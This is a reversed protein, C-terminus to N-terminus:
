YEGDELYAYSINEQKIHIKEPAKDVHNGKASGIQPLPQGVPQIQSGAKVQVYRSPPSKGLPTVFGHYRSVLCAEFSDGVQPAEGLKAVPTRASVGQSPASVPHSLLNASCNYYQNATPYMVQNNMLSDARSQYYAPEDFSDPPLMHGRPDIHCLTSSTPPNIDQELHHYFSKMSIGSLHHNDLCNYSDLHYDDRPEAKIATFYLHKVCSFTSSVDICQHVYAFTVSLYHAIFVHM